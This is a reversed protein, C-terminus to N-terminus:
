GGRRCAECKLIGAKRFVEPNYSNLIHECAHEYFYEKNIEHEVIPEEAIKGIYEIYKPRYIEPAEKLVPLKRRKERVTIRRSGMEAVFKEKLEEIEDIKGRSIIPIGGNIFMRVYAPRITGTIVIENNTRRATIEAEPYEKEIEEKIKEMSARRLNELLEGFKNKAKHAVGVTDEIAFNKEVFDKEFARKVIGAIILTDNSVTVDVDVEPHLTELQDKVWGELATDRREKKREEKEIEEKKVEAPPKELKPKPKPVPPKELKKPPEPKVKAKREKLESPELPEPPPAKVPVEELLGAEDCKNCLLAFNPLKMAEDLLDIKEDALLHRILSCIEKQDKRGIKDWAPAVYSFDLGADKIPLVTNGITANFIACECVELSDEFEVPTEEARPKEETKPPVKPPKPKVKEKREKPEPPEAPPAKVPVEELLGAEDCKDYLDAFTPLKMSEDLLDIKEDALLPRIVSCIEEQEERGVRDWADAIIYFDYDAENIPSMTDYEVAETIANACTELSDEYGASVEEEVRPKEEPKPPVKPAPPVEKEEEMEYPEKKKKAKLEPYDKLVEEPVPMGEKLANKIAKKHEYNISHNEFPIWKGSELKFGKPTVSIVRDIQGGPMSIRRDGRPSMIEQEIIESRTMQWPEKEKKEVKSPKEPPMKKAKEKLEKSLEDWKAYWERIDKDKDTSKKVLRIIPDDSWVHMTDSKDDAVMPFNIDLRQRGKEGLSFDYVMGIGLDKGEHNTYAVTDAEGFRLPEEELLKRYEESVELINPNTPFPSFIGKKIMEDIVATAASPNYGHARVEYEVFLRDCGLGEPYQKLTAELVLDEPPLKATTYVDTLPLHTPKIEKIIEDVYKRYVPGLIEEISEIRGPSELLSKVRTTVDEKIAEERKEEEKIEVEEKTLKEAPKVPPLLMNEIGIKSFIDEPVLHPAVFMVVCAYQEFDLTLLAPYYIYEGEEWIGERITLRAHPIKGRAPIGKLVDSLVGIAIPCIATTSVYSAPISLSELLEGEVNTIKIGQGYEPSSYFIVYYGTKRHTRVAKKLEPIDIDLDVASPVSFKKELDSFKEKPRLYEPDLLSMKFKLESQKGFLLGYNCIEIKDDLFDISIETKGYASLYDALKKIDLGVKRESDDYIFFFSAPLIGYGGITTGTNIFPIYWRNDDKNIQVAVEEQIASICKFISALQDARCSFM